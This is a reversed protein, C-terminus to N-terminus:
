DGKSKVFVASVYAGFELHVAGRRLLAAGQVPNQEPNGLAGFFRRTQDRMEVAREASQEFLAAAGQERALQQFSLWTRPIDDGIMGLRQPMEELRRPQLQNNLEALAEPKNRLLQAVAGFQQSAREFREGAVFGIAGADRMSGEDILLMAEHMRIVGTMFDKSGGNTLKLVEEDRTAHDVQAWTGWLQSVLALVVVLAGALVYKM